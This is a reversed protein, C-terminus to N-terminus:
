NYLIVCNGYMYKFFYTLCKYMYMHNMRCLFLGHYKLIRMLLMKKMTFHSFFTKFGYKTMEALLLAPMNRADIVHFGVSM